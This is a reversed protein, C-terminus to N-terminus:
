KADTAATKKSRFALWLTIALHAGRAIRRFWSPKSGAAEDKRSAFRLLESALLLINSAISAFSKAQDSVSRVGGGLAQWEQLLLARNIDSEALLLKKRAALPSLSPERGSM